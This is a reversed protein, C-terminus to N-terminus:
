LLSQAPVLGPPLPQQCTSEPKQPRGHDQLLHVAADQLLGELELKLVATAWFLVLLLLLLMKLNQQAGRNYKM